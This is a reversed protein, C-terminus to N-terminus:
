MQQLLDRWAQRHLLDAKIDDISKGVQILFERRGDEGFLILCSEVFRDFSAIYINQGTVFERDILEAIPEKDSDAIGTTAVFAVRM